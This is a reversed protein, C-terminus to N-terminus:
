VSSSQASDPKGADALPQSVLFSAEAILAILVEVHRAARWTAGMEHAPRLRETEMREELEILRQVTAPGPAPTAPLRLIRRLDAERRYDALGFRATRLLLRPRKMTALRSLITIDSQPPLVSM